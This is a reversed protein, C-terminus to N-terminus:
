AFGRYIAVDCTADHLVRENPNGHLFREALNRESAGLYILRSKTRNAAIVIEEPVDDSVVVRTEVVVTESVFQERIEAEIRECYAQGPQRLHEASEHSLLRFQWSSVREVHLLHVHTVDAAFLRFFPMGSRFGRPHGSVPLLIQRPLGLLGPQVVRVALVHCHGSQLIREAVTDGLLGRKHQHSRTGCVLYSNPGPPVAALIRQCVSGAAPTLHFEMVVNLRHCEAEIRRAKEMVAADSTHPGQVHVLHLTRNEHRAALRAAYHSVWDSHISGDYAFYVGNM